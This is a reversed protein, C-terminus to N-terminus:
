HVIGFKYITKQIYKEGPNLITSPFDAQNPSDPFHQAELCFASRFQYCVGDHGSDSGDLFNGSYFQLGPETTYLEMTRGSEPEYVKAALQLTEDSKNLVWNHDYGNGRKLQEDDDNIRKGIGTIQRFDMPTNGVILIEGTPILGHDVPTFSDANILLQHDLVSSKGGDKLNFFSHHTLNVITPKDTEALYDIEISNDDTLTYTVFIDLNGPYNEEGDHSLYHLKLMQRNTEIVDWFVNNYGIIGGHLHNDGNNCALSYEHGNLSFKGKAIRNAYRGILAGFYLNGDQYEEPTDYGLVVEGPNGTKDPVLISMIKGGFNTIKVKMGKANSLEIMKFNKDMRDVKNKQNKPACAIMSLLLLGGLILNTKM